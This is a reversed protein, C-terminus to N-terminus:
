ITEGKKIQSNVNITFIYGWVIFVIWYISVFPINGIAIYGLLKMILLIIYIILLFIDILKYISKTTKSIQINALKILMTTLCSSLFFYFLPIAVFSYLTDLIPNIIRYYVVTEYYKMFLLCCTSGLALLTESSIKYNKLM